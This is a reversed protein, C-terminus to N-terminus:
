FVGRLEGHLYLFELGARHKADLTWSRQIVGAVWAYALIRKTQNELGVSRGQGQKMNSESQKTNRAETYDRPLKGHRQYLHRTMRVKGGFVGM